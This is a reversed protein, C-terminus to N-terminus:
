YPGQSECGAAPLLEPSVYVLITAVCEGRLMMGHSCGLSTDISATAGGMGSSSAVTSATFQHTGANWTGGVPQFTGSGSWTGASIPTYIDGAPVDAGAVVRVNGNDTLTGTGNNAQLLSSRGVDVELLGSAGVTVNSTTAAAGGGSIYIAATGSNAITLAPQEDLDFRGDLAVTGNGASNSGITVTTNSVAGGGLICLTGIGSNGVSLGASNTWKSDAGCVTM